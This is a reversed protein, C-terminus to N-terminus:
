DGEGVAAPATSAIAIEPVITTRCEDLIGRQVAADTFNKVWWRCKVPGCLLARARSLLYRRWIWRPGSVLLPVNRNFPSLLQRTRGLGHFFKWVYDVTM